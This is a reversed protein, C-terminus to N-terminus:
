RVLWPHVTDAVVVDLPTPSLGFTRETHSADILDPYELSYFMEILEAIVPDQSGAWALDQRSQATLLPARVGAAEAIRSTLARVSIAHSPVHWPLGWSRDDVAVTVLTRAVDDVHSWTKLVDLDGPYAAPRGALVEPVVVLNYVSGAGAGLFASARVETARVRGAEHAALADLWMRARVAGKVSFPALPTSESMPGDVLGYGYTNSLAVYGAGTREAASLVAAALPPFETPWRDYPAWATNILTAAGRTLETLRDADTVDARVREILRHEPGGGGRSLLRVQEGREALLLAARGGTSGAGAIVHLSM